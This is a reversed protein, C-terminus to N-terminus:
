EILLGMIYDDIYHDENSRKYFKRLTGEIEFGLKRYFRIGRENDSEVILEIRKFGNEKLEAIVESIIKRALGSGQHSPKIALSGIYAVHSARGPHQSVKLFGAIESDLDYVFFNQANVMDTFIPRFEEVSMPDYGLFPIVSEHMYIKYVQDFDSKSCLRKM